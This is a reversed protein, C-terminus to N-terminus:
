RLTLLFLLCDRCSSLVDVMMIQCIGRSLMHCRSVVSGFRRVCFRRPSRNGSSHKPDFLSSTKVTDFLGWYVSSATRMLFRITFGVAASPTLFSCCVRDFSLGHRSDRLELLVDLM